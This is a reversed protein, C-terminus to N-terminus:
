PVLEPVVAAIDTTRAVGSGGLIDVEGDVSGNAAVPELEYNGETVTDGAAITSPM